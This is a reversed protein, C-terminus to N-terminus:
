IVPHGLFTRFFRGSTPTANRIEFIHRFNNKGFIIVGLESATSIYFIKCLGWLGRGRCCLTIRHVDGSSGTEHIVRVGAVEPKTYLGRWRSGTEHIVRGAAVEPKTYLGGRPVCHLGISM